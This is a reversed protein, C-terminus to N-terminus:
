RSGRKGANIIGIIITRTSFFENRSRLNYIYQAPKCEVVLKDNGRSGKKKKKEFSDPESIEPFFFSIFLDGFGRSFFFTM